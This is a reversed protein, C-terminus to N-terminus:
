FIDSVNNVNLLICVLTSGNLVLITGMIVLFKFILSKTSYLTKPDLPDLAKIILLAPFTDPLYESQYLMLFAFSSVMLVM